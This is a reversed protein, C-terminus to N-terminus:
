KGTRIYFPKYTLSQVHSGTQIISLFLVLLISKSKVKSCDIYWKVRYWLESRSKTDCVQTLLLPAGDFRALAQVIAEVLPM